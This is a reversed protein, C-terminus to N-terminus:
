RPLAQGQQRHAHQQGTKRQRADRRGLQPLIITEKGIILNAFTKQFHSRCIYVTNKDKSVFMIFIGVIFTGVLWM